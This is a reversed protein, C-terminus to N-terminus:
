NRGVCQYNIVVAADGTVTFATNSSASLRPVITVAGGVATLVCIPASTYTGAFTYSATGGGSLTLQGAIDTNSATNSRISVGKFEAATIKGSTALDGGSECLGSDVLFNGSFAKPLCNTTFGAAVGSVLNHFAAGNESVKLFHSTSNSYIRTTGGSSVAPETTEGMRIFGTTTFLHTATVTDGFTGAGSMDLDLGTIGARSGDGKQVNLSGGNDRLRIYSTTASGFQFIPNTSDGAQTFFSDGVATAGTYRPLKNTTGSGVACNAWVTVGLGNTQLCQNASGDNVPLTFTWPTYSISGNTSAAITVSGEFQNAVFTAGTFNGGNFTGASMTSAAFTSANVTGTGGGTAGSNFFFQTGSIEINPGTSTKFFLRSFDTGALNSIALKGNAVETLNSGLPWSLFTGVGVRASVNITGTVAVISGSQSVASDTLVSTSSWLPLKGLTGSGTISGGGGSATLTTGSLTLGSGVTIQQIAGTGSSSGRGLLFGQSVGNIKDFTYDGLTPIVIGTRGNFSTVGSGGSAPPFLTCKWAGNLRTAQMQSSGSTCVGSGNVGCNICVRVSADPLTSTLQSFPATQIAAATRSAQAYVGIVSCLLLVLILATRM